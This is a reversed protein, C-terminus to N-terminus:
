SMDIDSVAGGAPVTAAGAQAPNARIPYQGAVRFLSTDNTTFTPTGPKKL